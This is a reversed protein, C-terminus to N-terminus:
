AVLKSEHRHILLYVLYFDLINPILLSGYLDINQKLRIKKPKM